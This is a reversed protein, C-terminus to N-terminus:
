FLKSFFSCFLFSAELGVFVPALPLKKTAANKKELYARNAPLLCLHLEKLLLNRSEVDAAFITAGKLSLKGTRALPM